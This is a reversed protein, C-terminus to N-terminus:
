AKQMIWFFVLSGVLLAFLLLLTWGAATRLNGREMYRWSYILPSTLRDLFKLIDLIDPGIM